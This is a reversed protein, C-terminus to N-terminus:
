PELMHILNDQYRTLFYMFITTLSLSLLMLQGGIQLPMAVFFVPLAQMLRGLIGLGIYYIMSTVIFPSALQVGLTFSDAVRRAVLASFDALPLPQGPVFLTYSEGIGRIMLHHLDTIFLLTMGITGMFSALISSQQNTIPDQILANALSSFLAILTGATQLAATMVRAVLGLFGGVIVEGILLIGLGTATEPMGPLSNMLFPMLMLSLGLAVALRMMPKVYDSSFGPLLMFVAGVRAFILFFAFVNLKLLEELM